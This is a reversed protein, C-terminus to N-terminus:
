IQGFQSFFKTLSAECSRIKAPFQSLISIGVYILDVSYRYRIGTLYWKRHRYRGSVPFHLNIPKPRVSVSRGFHNQVETCLGPVLFCAALACDGCCVCVVFVLGIHQFNAILRWVLREYIWLNGVGFIVKSWMEQRARVWILDIREGERIRIMFWLDVIVVM